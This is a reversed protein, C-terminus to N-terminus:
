ELPVDDCTTLTNLKSPVSSDRCSGYEPKRVCFRPDGMEAVAKWGCRGIKPQAARPSWLMVSKEHSFASRAVFM